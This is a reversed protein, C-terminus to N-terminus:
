VGEGPAPKLEEPKGLLYGQVLYIGLEKVVGLEQATEIGEAIIGDTSCNRLGLLLDKMVRKFKTSDVAQLVTSRDLKIHDPVLRAIFPLSIFGAGFDDIAFKYGHARWTKAVDLHEEVNQVAEAESIELVVELSPSVPQPRVQRLLNFDVNIFVRDLGINQAAQLQSRLCLSKLEHLQGIAQYKRFLDLINLKGQADRSLAEYGYCRHTRVDIIPQFVVKITSEALVYEEEGVHLKDGGKKSIYLARDALRILDKANKGHEPCLAVGISLDVEWKQEQSLRRVAKRIRKAALVVDERKIGSLIVVIEDGGWRFVLDSGRTAAHIRRSVARLVKDGFHHGQADNLMKFNDLDCLLIALCSEEQIAWRIEEEIRTDFYRRNFLGTLPDRIAQYEATEEARKREIAVGILNSVGELFEADGATFKRPQGSYVGLVGIPHGRSAMPVTLTSVVGHEQSSSAGDFRRDKKLDEVVVPRNVLLTYAAQSNLSLPAPDRSVSDTSFGVDAAPVLADGAKNLLLINCLEVELVEAIWCVSQRMVEELNATKLCKESIEKSVRQRELHRRLIEESEKRETIDRIIAFGGITEGSERLLPSFYGEIFGRCGTKANAYPREGVVFTEGSLIRQFFDKDGPAVALPFMELASQGLSEEESIGTLREMVPNWIIYRFQSDFALIGDVSSQVIRDFGVRLRSNAEFLEQSSLELSRELMSRDADFQLYARDVADVFARWEESIDDPRCLHRKLQRKLLSHM